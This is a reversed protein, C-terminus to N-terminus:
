KVRLRMEIEGDIIAGTKRFGLSEYLKEANVNTPVYTLGIERCDPEASMRRVAEVMAARGYGKGQQNKDVLLRQIVHFGVDPHLGYMIFGVMEGGDYIAWPVLYPEVKSQALSFVNPAVFNRQEEHTELKVCELFNDKDVERLTVSMSNERWLNRRGKEEEQRSWSRVDM